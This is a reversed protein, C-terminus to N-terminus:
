GRSCAGTLLFQLTQLTELADLHRAEAERTRVEMKAIDMEGRQLREKSNSRLMGAHRKVAVKTLRELEVLQRRQAQLQAQSEALQEQYQLERLFYKESSKEAVEVSLAATREEALQLKQEMHQVHESHAAVSAMAAELQKKFTALQTVSHQVRGESQLVKQQMEVLQKRRRALREEMLQHIEKGKSQRQLLTADALQQELEFNRLLLQEKEAAVVALQQDMETAHSANLGASSTRSPVAGGAHLFELLFEFPNEPRDTVVRQIMNQFFAALGFREMYENADRRMGALHEQAGESESATSDESPSREIRYAQARHDEESTGRMEKRPSM